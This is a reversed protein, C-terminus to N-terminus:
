LAVLFKHFLFCMYFQKFLFVIELSYCLSTWNTWFIPVFELSSWSHFQYSGPVPAQPCSIPYSHCSCKCLDFGGGVRKGQTLHCYAFIDAMLCAYQTHPSLDCFSCLTGPAQQCWFLVPFVWALLDTLPVCQGALVNNCSKTSQLLFTMQTVDLMLFGWIFHSERLRASSNSQFELVLISFSSPSAAVSLMPGPSVLLTEWMDVESIRLSAQQQTLGLNM